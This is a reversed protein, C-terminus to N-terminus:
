KKKPSESGGQSRLIEDLREPSLREASLLADIVKRLQENTEQKQRQLDEIQRLIEKRDASLQQIDAQVKAKEVELDHRENALKTATAQFYGNAFGYILSLLALVTPLAALVYAPNKWWSDKLRQIELRLKERELEAKDPEVREDPAVDEVM